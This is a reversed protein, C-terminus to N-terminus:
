DQIKLGVEKSLCGLLLEIRKQLLKVAQNLITKEDLDQNYDSIEYCCKIILYDFDHDIVRISYKLKLLNNENYDYSVAIKAKVDNVKKPKFLCVNEVEMNILIAKM